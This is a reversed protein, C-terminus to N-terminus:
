LIYLLPPMERSFVGSYSLMVPDRRGRWGQGCGRGEVPKLWAQEKRRRVCKLFIGVRPDKM